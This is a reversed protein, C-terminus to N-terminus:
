IDLLQAAEEFRDLLYCDLSRPLQQIGPISFDKSNRNAFYHPGPRVRVRLDTAVAALVVADPTELDFDFRYALAADFVASDIPILQAIALLRRVTDDLRSLERQDIQTVIDPMPRLAAVDQQHPLSRDLERVHRNFETVLNRRDRVQRTVTSFPESLSFAPLALELQAQEALILLREAATSDQQGLAIELVFNSEVFLTL